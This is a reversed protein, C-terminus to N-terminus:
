FTKILDDLMRQDVGTKGHRLEGKLNRSETGRQGIGIGDKAGQRSVTNGAIVQNNGNAIGCGARNNAPAGVLPATAGLARQQWRREVGHKRDRRGHLRKDGRRRIRKGSDSETGLRAQDHTVEVKNALRVGLIELEAIRQENAGHKRAALGSIRAPSSTASTM